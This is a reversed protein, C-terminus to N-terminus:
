PVNESVGVAKLAALCIALPLSDASASVGENMEEHPPAATVEPFQMHWEECRNQGETRREIRVGYHHPGIAPYPCGDNTALVKEVVLWADAISTSFYPLESYYGAADISNGKEDRENCNPADKPYWGKPACYPKWERYELGMVHTAVKVDLPRWSEEDVPM